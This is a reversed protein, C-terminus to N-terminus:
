TLFYYFNNLRDCDKIMEAKDKSFMVTRYFKGDHYENVESFLDEWKQTIDNWTAQDEVYYKIGIEDM